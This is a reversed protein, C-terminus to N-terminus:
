MFSFEDSWDEDGNYPQTFEDPLDQIMDVIPTKPRVPPTFVDRCNRAFWAILAERSRKELRDLPPKEQESILPGALELLWKVNFKRGKQRALTTLSQEMKAYASGLARRRRSQEEHSHLTEKTLSRREGVPIIIIQMELFHLTM